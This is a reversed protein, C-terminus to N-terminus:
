TGIIALLFNAKTLWFQAFQLCIFIWVFFFLCLLLLSFYFIRETNARSWFLCGASMSGMLVHGFAASSFSISTDSCLVQQNNGRQSYTQNIDSTAYPNTMQRRFSHLGFRRTTNISNITRYKKGRICLVWLQDHDISYIADTPASNVRNSKAQCLSQTLLDISSRPLSCENWLM